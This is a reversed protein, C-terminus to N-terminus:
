PKRESFASKESSHALRPMVKMPGGGEALRLSPKLLAPLATATSRTMSPVPETEAAFVSSPVANESRSAMSAAVSALAVVVLGVLWRPAFLLPASLVVVIFFVVGAVVGARCGAPTDFFVYQKEM